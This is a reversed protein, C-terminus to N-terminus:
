NLGYVSILSGTKFSDTDPFFRITKLPATNYWQSSFVAVSGSPSGSLFLGELSLVTKFYLDSLYNPIFAVFFGSEGAAAGDNAAAGIHVSNNTNDWGASATVTTGSLRQIAYNSAGTDGNFQASIPTGSVAPNTTRFNGILFLHKYTPPIEVVFESQDSDMRKLQVLPFFPLDLVTNDIRSDQTQWGRAVSAADSLYRSQLALEGLDGVPKGEALNKIAAILLEDFSRMKVGGFFPVLMALGALKMFESRNM